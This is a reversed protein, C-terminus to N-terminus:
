LKMGAANGRRTMFAKIPTMAKKVDVATVTMVAIGGRGSEVIDMLKAAARVPPPWYAWGDSVRNVEDKFRKLFQAAEGIPGTRLRYAAEDIDYTNM